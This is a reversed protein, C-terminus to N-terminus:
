AEVRRHCPCGPCGGSEDCARHQGDLCDLSLREAERAAAFERLRRLEAHVRTSMRAYTVIGVLVLFVVALVVIAALASARALM